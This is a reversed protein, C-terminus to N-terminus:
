RVPFKAMAEAIDTAIQAIEGRNLVFDVIYEGKQYEEPPVVDFAFIFRLLRLDSGMAQQFITVTNDSFSFYPSTLGDRSGESLVVFWDLMDKMDYASMSPDQVKWAYRDDACDFQLNLWNADEDRGGMKELQQPTPIGGIDDRDPYEYDIVDIRVKKGDKEVHIM